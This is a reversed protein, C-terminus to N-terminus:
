IGALIGYFFREVEGPATAGRYGYECHVRGLLPEGIPQCGRDELRWWASEVQLRTGAEVPVTVVEVQVLQPCRARTTAQEEFTGEASFPVPAPAPSAFTADWDNTDQHCFYGTRLRDARQGAPDLAIGRATLRAAAETLAAAPVTRTEVPRASCAAVGLLGTIVLLHASM